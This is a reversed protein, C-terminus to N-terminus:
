VEYETVARVILETISVQEADAKERFMEFESNTIAIRMQYGRRTEPDKRAAGGKKGAASATEKTFPM